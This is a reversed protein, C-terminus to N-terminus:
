QGHENMVERIIVIRKVISAKPITMDGCASEEAGISENEPSFHSAIVVCDDNEFIVFGVSICNHRFSIRSLREHDIHQWNSGCGFSDLWEIYEVEYPFPKNESKSM